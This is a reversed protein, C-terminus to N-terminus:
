LRDTRPELGLPGVMSHFLMACTISKKNEQFSPLIHRFRQKHLRHPRRACANKAHAAAHPIGKAPRRRVIHVIHQRPHLLRAKARKKRTRLLDALRERDVMDINVPPARLHGKRAFLNLRARAIAPKVDREVRRHRNLLIKVPAIRRHVRHRQLQRLLPEDIGVPPTRINRRADNTGHRRMEGLIGHPRQARRPLRRREAKRNLRPRKGIHAGARLFQLFLRTLTRHSLQATRELHRTGGHKEAHEVRRLQKIHGERLDRRESSLRLRRLKMGLSVRKFM